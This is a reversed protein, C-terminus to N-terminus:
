NFGPCGMRGSIVEIKSKAAECTPNFAGIRSDLEKKLEELEQLKGCDAPQGSISKRAYLRQGV